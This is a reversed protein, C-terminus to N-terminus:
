QLRHTLWCHQLKSYSHLSCDVLELLSIWFTSSVSTLIASIQIDHCWSCIDLLRNRLAVLM